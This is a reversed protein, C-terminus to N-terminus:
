LSLSLSLLSVEPLCMQVVDNHDASLDIRSEILTPCFIGAGPNETEM